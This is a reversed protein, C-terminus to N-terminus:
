VGDCNMHESCSVDVPADGLRSTMCNMSSCDDLDAETFSELGGSTCLDGVRDWSRWGTGDPAFAYADRGAFQGGDTSYEFSFRASQENAIANVLCAVVADNEQNCAGADSDTDTDTDTDDGGAGTSGSLPQCLEGDLYGGCDVELEFNKCELVDAGSATVLEALEETDSTQPDTDGGEGTGDSPCAALLLM